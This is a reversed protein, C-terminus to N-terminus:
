FVEFISRMYKRILRPIELDTVRLVAHQSSSWGGRHSVDTAFSFHRARIARLELNDVVAGLASEFDHTDPLRTESKTGALVPGDCSWSETCGDDGCGPCLPCQEPLTHGSHAATLDLTSTAVTRDATMENTQSAATCTQPALNLWVVVLLGLVTRAPTRQQHRITALLTM